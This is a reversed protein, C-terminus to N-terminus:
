AAGRAFEPIGALLTVGMEVSQSFEWPEFRKVSRIALHRGSFYIEYYPCELLYAMTRQHLVDYAWRRDPSKVHFERSFESSEFDIDDWGFAASLKDFVGEPRITMDKLSFPSEVVAVSFRHHRTKQDGDSDRSRTEYHYDFVEIAFGEHKGEVINHAYRNRGRDLFDFQHYKSDYGRIKAGEFRWRREKAFQKLTERRNKEQLHGLIGVAIALLFFGGFILIPLGDM